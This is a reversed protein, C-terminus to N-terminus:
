SLSSLIISIMEQRFVVPTLDSILASLPEYGLGTMILHILVFSWAAGHFTEVAKTARETRIKRSLPQLIFSIIILIISIITAVFKAQERTMLDLQVQIDPMTATSVLKPGVTQIVYTATIGNAAVTLGLGILIGLLFTNM